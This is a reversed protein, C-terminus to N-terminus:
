RGLSLSEGRALRVLAGAIDDGHVLHDVAKRAVAAGPMGFVVCSEENQALTMGGAQKIALMGEAGDEGMGTLILGLTRRGYAKAASEMLVTGSPMHGDREVGPRLAVRGRFPIMMHQGPPAILVNGPLLQEGDQALRVKLKSSNALWGALSESFAANIHQVIAIPTSFDAPLESLMRFLVQPGGTSCAVALVGYPMGVPAPAPTVGGSGPLPPRRKSHIHRIVRVSSLLKVERSLNWAEAGADISPKIQLALAGLELARYTLEPAQHRPDATLMLIPTPVEAMIHEVATLGDMVPMEVDMTIVQPRLDRAAELAEKGNACTGVVELDPDRSLAECILQRCIHSDDVVLVSVKKGM